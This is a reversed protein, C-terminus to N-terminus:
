STPDAKTACRSHDHSTAPDSLCGGRAGRPWGACLQLRRTGGQSEAGQTAPLMGFPAYLKDIFENIEAPSEGVSDEILLHVPDFEMTEPPM